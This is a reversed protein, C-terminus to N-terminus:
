NFSYGLQPGIVSHWVYEGLKRSKARCLVKEKFEPIKDMQKKAVLKRASNAEALSFGCIDEDMLIVMLDEQSSPAGYSKLMYKELVKQEEKTLGVADMEAYWLSIDNKLRAYRDAPREEGDEGMLRMLSNCAILEEVNRPKLKRVIAGGVNTNLQFLAVIDTSDIADWLKDDELPIKSPHVYKDYAQRLTLEKEIYGKDQLIEICQEMIDVQQTVLMDMKVDGCYEADHLSYQTIISGNTAKMFCATDYPDSDDYFNVGSAHISRNKILGEIKEIIELLGPYEKIAKVFTAVPRRGKEENGYVVDHIGWVFGREVPVLSSLYQSTDNDIGAPYERTRYGRCASQIASKTSETSFTCVQVCGLQGREERIKSFILERKSPSIDIDIDPMEVRDKNMYRWFQSNSEIPDTQTIGLLYHNLGAGASNHVAIDNVIYNHNNEVTLDYVPGSYTETQISSIRRWMGEDSVYFNKIRKKDLDGSPINYFGLVTLNDLVNQNIQSSPIVLREQTTEGEGADATNYRRISALIGLYACIMRMQSLLAKDKSTYFIGRTTKAWGYSGGQTIFGDILAYMCEEDNFILKQSITQKYLVNSSLSEFLRMLPTNHIVIRPSKLTEDDVLAYNCEISDLFEIVKDIASEDQDKQNSDILIIGGSGKTYHLMMNCLSYGYFFMFEKNIDVFRKSRMKTSEIYDDDYQFSEYTEDIYDALDFRDISKQPFQPKPYFLWDRTKLEDARVWEGKQPIKSRSVYYEHNDTNYNVMHATDTPRIKYIVEDNCDYRLTNIVKQPTGDLTMVYDGVNVDEILKFTGDGMLVRNKEPLFCGRGAAVPSGCEWFMDIYHQLFIPYAFVCSDIREGVYKKIDAEYELRSMYKENYLGLQKLKDVCQNVWYREQKNESNALYDLTPYKSSDVKIRGKPYDYIADVQPVQQNRHLTFPEIKNYIEMTNDELEQYDLGTGELNKIVEETSQLYAYYYFSDVEREGDKSNLFARHANRDEPKLYHADTTVIIKMGFANAINKMMSNVAIQDKSQAPQVELYFDDDFLEKMLELFNVISSYAEDASINDGITRATSLKVIETSIEGGLCASSAILNGKGYKKIVAALESKLTPVREMGRDYYSNIWANSSLERLMKHGVANKAILIFHYYKQGTDRTDTLYIENGRAIKFGPYKEAYEQALKDLEVHASLSEHDTIAIGALGLEIARDILDKPKNVCDKLRLNSYHTHSHCEFRGALLM